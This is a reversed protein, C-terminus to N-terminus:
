RRAAWPTSCRRSCCRDPSTESRSPWGYMPVAAPSVSYFTTLVIAYTFFIANYLFSQTIMLTAGLVARKTYRSFALRLLRVYGYSPGPELTVASGPDVPALLHGSDRAQKEIDDMIQEAEAARDHHLLWRPSEPLTKRVYIIVLALVPGVLFAVKWGLDQPLADLFLMTVFSGLIAGAWYSGNIWVDVRGRYRAPM